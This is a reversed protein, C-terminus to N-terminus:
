PFCTPIIRSEIFDLRSGLTEAWEPTAPVNVPIVDPSSEGQAALTVWKRMEEIYGELADKPTPSDDTVLYAPPVDGVVVWLFEDVDPRSPAIRALFIAIVDGVGAGFYFERIERCWDFSGLFGRALTEMARLQTTEAEDEGATESVPVVGSVPLDTPM